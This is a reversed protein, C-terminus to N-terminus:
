DWYHKMLETAGQPQRLPGRPGFESMYPKIDIVPTGDIADLGRPRVPVGRRHALLRGVGCLQSTM